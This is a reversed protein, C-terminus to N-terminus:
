LELCPGEAVVSRVNGLAGCMQYTEGPQPAPYPEGGRWAAVHITGGFYWVNEREDLWLVRYTQRRRSRTQVWRVIGDPGRFAKGLNPDLSALGTTTTAERDLATRLRALKAMLSAYDPRTYQPATYLKPRYGSNHAAFLECPQGDQVCITQVRWGQADQQADSVALLLVDMGSQCEWVLDGETISPLAIYDM